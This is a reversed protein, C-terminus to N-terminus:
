SKPYECNRWRRTTVRLQADKSVKLGTWISRRPSGEARESQVNGGYTDDLILGEDM